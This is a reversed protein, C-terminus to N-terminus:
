PKYSFMIGYVGLQICLIILFLSFCISDICQICYQHIDKTYRNDKKANKILELENQSQSNKNVCTENCHEETIVRPSFLQSTNGKQQNKSCSNRYAWSLTLLLQPFTDQTDNEAFKHHLSITRVTCFAILVSCFLQIVLFINFYSIPKCAPLIDTVMTIFVIFTLLITFALSGREGSAVPICFVLLNAFSLLVIPLVLNLFPFSPNRSLTLNFRVISSVNAYVEGDVSNETISWETNSVAYKLDFTKMESKLIVSGHAYDPFLQISCAHSDFPFYKVDTSCTIDQAGSVHFEAFGNSQYNVHSRRMEMENHYMFISKHRVMNFVSIKPIWTTTIPLSISTVNGYESSNWRRIEDMWTLVYSMVPQLTGSVENYDLIATIFAMISVDVPDKQNLRPNLDPSFKKLQRELNSIEDFTQGYILFRLQTFYTFILVSKIFDM